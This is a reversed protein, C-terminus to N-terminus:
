IPLSFVTKAADPGVSALLAVGVGGLAPGWQQRIGYLLGTGVGVMTIAKGLSGELWNEITTVAPDFTTDTGALAPSAIALTAAAAVAIRVAKATHTGHSVSLKTM